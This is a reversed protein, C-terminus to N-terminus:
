SNHEAELQRLRKRAMDISTVARCEFMEVLVAPDGRTDLHYMNVISRGDKSYVDAGYHLTKLM